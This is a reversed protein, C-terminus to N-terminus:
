FDWDPRPDPLRLAWALAELLAQPGALEDTVALGSAPQVGMWMRTFAGVSATLTPLSPDLGQQAGSSGGLTVVYDGAVGRWASDAQLLSEIPDSLRLNFCVDAARLHTRALCAPLDCIRLQWYASAHLSNELRTRQTARRRRFPRDLLDQLQMGAPERMEVLHVQDGLSKILAMLELFQERTRFALSQVHYPGHEPERVDCWLHHTLERQPGDCYGLGFGKETGLMEARTFQPPHINCAGHGRLRALRSAHVMEWDDATLRRPVRAEAAVRLGAPDFALWHEYAGTGFGLRNYFGQEFIGLGAVLAGEAADAAVARALLRTALGKKRAVRSTAVGTVCCLPLDEDLYRLSGPTTTVASEAAGDLDAVSCRSCQLLLDFDEHRDKPLWGVERWIRLVSDRDRGADFDRLNM